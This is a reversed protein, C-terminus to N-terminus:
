TIRTTALLLVYLLLYAVLSLSFLIFLCSSALLVLSMLM